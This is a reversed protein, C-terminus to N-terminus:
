GGRDLFGLLEEVVATLDGGSVVVRHVGLDGAEALRAEDASVVLVENPAWPGLDLAGDAWEVDVGEPLPGLALGPDVVVRHVAM